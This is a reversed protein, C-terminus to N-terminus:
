GPSPRSRRPFPLRICCALAREFEKQAQPSCSTKFQVTGLRGKIADDDHAAIETTGFAFLSAVVAAIRKPAM